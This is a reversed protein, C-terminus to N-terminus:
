ALYQRLKAVVSASAIRVDTIPSFEAREAVLKRFLPVVSGRSCVDASTSERGSRNCAWGRAGVM